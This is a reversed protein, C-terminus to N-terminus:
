THNDRNRTSIRGPPRRKAWSIMASRVTNKLKEDPPLTEITADIFRLTQEDPPFTEPPAEAIYPQPHVRGLSITIRKVGFSSLKSIITAKHFTVQQIWGSSDAHLHLTGNSFRAPGVHRLLPGDFLHDWQARIRELTLGGGLGLGIAMSTVVGSLRKMM